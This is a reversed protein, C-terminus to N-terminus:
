WHEPPLLFSGQFITISALCFRIACKISTHKDPSASGSNFQLQACNIQKCFSTREFVVLSKQPFNNFVSVDKLRVWSEESELVTLSSPRFRMRERSQPRNRVNDGWRSIKLFITWDVGTLTLFPHFYPYRTKIGLNADVGGVGIGCIVFLQGKKEWKGGGM